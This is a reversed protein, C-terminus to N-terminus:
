FDIEMNELMAKINEKDFIDEKQLADWKAKDWIEAKEGAGIIVVEKTIGVADRLDQPVVVRGQSDMEVDAAKSRFYRKLMRVKEKNNSQRDLKETFNEWEELSYMSLCDDIGETIVFSSGLSDRIKAPIILRGKTDINHKYTGKM